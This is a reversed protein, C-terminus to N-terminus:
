DHNIRYPKNKSRIRQLCQMAEEKMGTGPPLSTIYEMLQPEFQVPAIESLLNSFARFYGNRPYRHWPERTSKLISLILRCLELKQPHDYLASALDTIFYLSSESIPSYSSRSLCSFIVEYFLPTDKLCAAAALRQAPDNSHLATRSVSLLQRDPTHSFYFEASKRNMFFQRACHFVQEGAPGPLEFFGASTTLAAATIVTNLRLYGTFTEFEKKSRIFQAFFVCGSASIFLGAPSFFARDSGDRILSVALAATAILVSFFLIGSGRIEKSLLKCKRLAFILLLPIVPMTMYLMINLWHLMHFPSLLKDPAFVPKMGQITPIQLPILGRLSLLVDSLPKMLDIGSFTLILFVAAMHGSLVTVLRIKGRNRSWPSWLTLWVAAPLLVLMVPHSWFALYCFFAARFLRKGMRLYHLIDRLFLLSMLSALASDPSIGTFVAAAPLSCFPLFAWWASKGLDLFIKLCTYCAGCACFWVFIGYAGPGSVFNFRLIMFLLGALKTGLHGPSLCIDKITPLFAHSLTFKLSSSPVYVSRFFWLVTAALVLVATGTLRPRAQWPIMGSLAAIATAAAFFHGFPVLSALPWFYSAPSLGPPTMPTMQHFVKVALHMAVLLLGSFFLITRGIHETACSRAFFGEWKGTM